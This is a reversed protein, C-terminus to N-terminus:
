KDTYTFVVYVPLHDSIGGYYNDGGYTRSPVKIGENTEYMMWDQQFIEGSSYDCSLSNMRDILNYSVIIQDLMNWSGRYNYSGENHLNHKDYYLNYLDGKGFNKRKNGAMLISNLSKNTPEDNFDGMIIFRSQSDKSLLIDIKRRLAVASYLRKPESAKEGGRRSSWHNVFVHIDNKDNAELHIYLIDRTRFTTDFPLKVPIVEHNRVKVTNRNYLLAVDIGRVDPSEEHVIGYNGAKLGPMEILDELVSINEVESLGIIDPLKDNSMSSLVRAVNDLKKFYKTTNWNKKSDPTFEEDLLVPQDITDFLNEVNYFCVILNETKKQTFAQINFFFFLILLSLNIHIRSYM